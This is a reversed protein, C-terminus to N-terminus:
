TLLSIVNRLDFYDSALYSAVFYMRASRKGVERYWNRRRRSVEIAGTAIGVKFGLSGAADESSSSGVVPVCHNECAGEALNNSPLGTTHRDSTSVGGISKVALFIALAGHNVTILVILASCRM